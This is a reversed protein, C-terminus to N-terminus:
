MELFIRVRDVSIGATEAIRRRSEEVVADISEAADGGFLSQAPVGLARALAAARTARPQAKDKEWSSIAPKSVGVQEALAEQTLGRAKRLQRLRSGLGESSRGEATGIAPTVVSRLAAASLTAKSVPREFRCGAFRDRIWVVTAAVPGSHPLDVEFSDNPNLPAITEILLGDESINHITVVETEGSAGVGAVQLRLVRRKSRRGHGRPFAEFKAVVSM